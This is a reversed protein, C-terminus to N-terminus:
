SLLRGPSHANQASLVTLEVSEHQMVAFTFARQEPTVRGVVTDRGGTNGDLVEDAEALEVAPAPVPSVDLDPREPPAMAPMTMPDIM